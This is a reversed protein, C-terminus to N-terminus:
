ILFRCLRLSSAACVIAIGALVSFSEFLKEIGPLFYFPADDHFRRGDPPRVLDLEETFGFPMSPHFFM